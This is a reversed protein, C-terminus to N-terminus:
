INLLEELSTQYQNLIDDARDKNRLIEVNMEYLTTKTQKYLRDLEPKIDTFKDPKTETKTRLKECHDLVSSLKFIQSKLNLEEKKCSEMEEKAKITLKASMEIIEDLKITRLETENDDITDYASTIEEELHVPRPGPTTADHVPQARSVKKNFLGIEISYYIIGLTIDVDEINDPVSNDKRRADKPPSSSSSIGAREIATEIKEIEKEVVKTAEPIVIDDELLTQADGGVFPKGNEDEFELEIPTVVAEVEAEEGEEAGGEEDDEGDGEPEAAQNDEDPEKADAEPDLVVPEADPEPLIFKESGLKKTIKKASKIIKEVPDVDDVLDDADDVDAVGTTDAGFKFLVMDGNNKCSCMLSSSISLLDCDLLPGKVESIYEIQRSEVTSTLRSIIVTKYRETDDNCPMKYKEPVSIFFTKQIKPTRIELFHVYGESDAYIAVPTYSKSTLLTSLKGFSLVSVSKNKNSSM